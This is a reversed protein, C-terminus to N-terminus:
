PEEEKAPLEKRWRAMKSQMTPQDLALPIIIPKFLLMVLLMSTSWAGGIQAFIEAFAKQRTLIDRGLFSGVNYFLMLDKCNDPQSTDLVSTVPTSSMSKHYVRKTM